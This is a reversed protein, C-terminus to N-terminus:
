IKTYQWLPKKITKGTKLPEEKNKHKDRNKTNKGIDWFSPAVASISELNPDANVFLNFFISFTILSSWYRYIYNYYMYINCDDLMM